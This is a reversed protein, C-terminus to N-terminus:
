FFVTEDTQDTISAFDFTDICGPKSVILEFTCGIAEQEWTIACSDKFLQDGPHNFRLDLPYTTHLPLSLESSFGNADIGAKIYGGVINCFELMFSGVERDECTPVGLKQALLPGVVTM